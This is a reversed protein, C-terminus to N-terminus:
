TRKRARARAARLVYIGGGISLAASSALLHYDIM